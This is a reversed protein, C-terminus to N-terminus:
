RKMIAEVFICNTYQSRKRIFPEEVLNSSISVPLPEHKGIWTITNTDKLEEYPVCISELDFIALNKFLKQEDNCPIGFKDFNDFLTERLTYIYM